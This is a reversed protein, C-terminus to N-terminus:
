SSKRKVLVLYSTREEYSNAWRVLILIEASCWMAVWPVPTTRVATRVFLFFNAYAFHTSFLFLFFCYFIFIFCSSFCFFLLFLLYCFESLWVISLCHLKFNAHTSFRTNTTTATKHSKGKKNKKQKEQTWSSGISKQTQTRWKRRVMSNSSAWFRKSQRDWISENKKKKKKQSKWKIQNWKM